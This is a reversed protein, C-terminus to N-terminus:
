FTDALELILAMYIMPWPFCEDSLTNWHRAVNPFFSNVYQCLCVQLINPITVSFDHLRNSYSTSRGGSYSLPVLQALESLCKAFSYWYFHSLSTVLSISPQNQSLRCECALYLTCIHTYTTYVDNFFVPQPPWTHMLHLTCVFILSAHMLLFCQNLALRPCGVCVFILPSYIPIFFM